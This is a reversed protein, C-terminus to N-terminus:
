WTIRNLFRWFRELYSVPRRRLGSPYALGRLACRRDLFDDLAIMSGTEAQSPELLGREAAWRWVIPLVFQAIDEATGGPPCLLIKNNRSRGNLLIYGEADVLVIADSVEM